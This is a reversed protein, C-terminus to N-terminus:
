PTKCKCESNRICATLIIKHMYCTRSSVWGDRLHSLLAHTFIMYHVPFPLSFLFSVVGCIRQIKFSRNRRRTVRHYPWSKMAFSRSFFFCPPVGSSCQILVLRSCLGCMNFLHVCYMDKLSTNIDMYRRQTYEYWELEYSSLNASRSLCTHTAIRCLTLKADYKHQIRIHQSSLTRKLAICIAWISIITHQCNLKLSARETTKPPSSNRKTQAFAPAFMFRERTSYDSCIRRALLHLIFTHLALSCVLTVQYMSQFSLSRPYHVTNEPPLLETPQKKSFRSSPTEVSAVIIAFTSVIVSLAWRCLGDTASERDRQMHIPALPVVSASRWSPSSPSVILDHKSSAIRTGRTKPCGLPSFPLCNPYTIKHSLSVFAM